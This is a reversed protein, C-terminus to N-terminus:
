NGTYEYKKLEENMGTYILPDFEVNINRTDYEAYEILIRVATETYPLPFRDAWEVLYICNEGTMDEWGINEMECYDDLRYLDIHYVPCLGEYQWAIVFSPSKVKQTVGLGSCVGSIIVTKGTGLDGTFLIGRGPSLFRSIIRGIERTKEPSDSYLKM